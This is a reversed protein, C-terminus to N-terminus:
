KWYSCEKSKIKRKLLFSLNARISINVKPFMNGRLKRTVGGWNFLLFCEWIKALYESASVRQRSVLSFSWLPILLLLPAQARSPDPPTTANIVSKVEGHYLKSQLVSAARVARCVWHLPTTKAEDSCARPLFYRRNIVGIIQMKRNVPRRSKVTRVWDTLSLQLFLVSFFTGSSTIEMM